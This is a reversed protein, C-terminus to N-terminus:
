FRIIWGSKIEPKSNFTVLTAYMLVTDGVQPKDLLESYRKEGDAGYYGYVDFTGCEGEDIM